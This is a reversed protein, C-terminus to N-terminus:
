PGWAYATLGNVDVVKSRGTGDLGAIELSTSVITSDTSCQTEFLLATGDPAWVPAYSSCGEPSSTVERLGSGNPHILYVGSAVTNEPDAGSFAIWSGDPSWQASTPNIGAPTEIQQPRSGDINVIYLAKQSNSVDAAFVVQSGDPSSDASVGDFYDNDQVSADPPSLATLGGTGDTTVSYLTRLGTANQVAFYAHSGDSAYGSPGSSASIRTLPLLGTGDPKITYLVDSTYPCLLRDGDPSWASCGFSEPLRPNSLVTYGSGDANLTATGSTLDPRFVICLM